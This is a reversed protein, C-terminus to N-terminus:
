FFYTNTKLSEAPEARDTIASHLTYLGLGSNQDVEAWKYADVLNSAVAQTQRPTGAPLINQLGDFVDLILQKGRENELTCQRVFGFKGSTQWSYSFVLGLSGRILTQSATLALCFDAFFRLKYTM